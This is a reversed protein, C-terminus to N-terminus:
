GKIKRFEVYELPCVYISQEKETNRFSRVIPKWHKNTEQKVFATYKLDNSVWFYAGVSGKARDVADRDAIFFDLYPYDALSTFNKLQSYKVELRLTKGDKKVFLDGEDQFESAPQNKPRLRLAPLTVEWENRYFWEAIAMVGPISAKLRKGFEEHTNGM